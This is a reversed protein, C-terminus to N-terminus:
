VPKRGQIIRVLIVIIALILLVHVFFGLIPLFIFGLVLDIDAIGSDDLSNVILARL